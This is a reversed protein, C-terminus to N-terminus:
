FTLAHAGMTVHTPYPIHKRITYCLARAGGQTWFYDGQELSLWTRRDFFSMQGKDMQEAQFKPSLLKARSVKPAPVPWTELRMDAHRQCLKWQINRWATKYWRLKGKLTRQNVVMKAYAGREQGVDFWGASPKHCIWCIDPTTIKIGDDSMRQQTPRNWTATAM